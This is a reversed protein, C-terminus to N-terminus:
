TFLAQALCQLLCIDKPDLKSAPKFFIFSNTLTKFYFINTKMKEPLTQKSNKKGFIKQFISKQKGCRAEGFYMDKSETLHRELTQRETVHRETVQREPVHREPVHRETVHREPNQKRYREKTKRYM